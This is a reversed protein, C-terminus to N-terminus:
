GREQRENRKGGRKDRMENVGERTENQKGGRKDRM